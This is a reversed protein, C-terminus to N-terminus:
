SPEHESELSEVQWEDSAVLILMEEDLMISRLPNGILVSKEEEFEEKIKEFQEEQHDCVVLVVPRDGYELYHHYLMMILQRTKVCGNGKDTEAREAVLEDLGNKGLNFLRDMDTIVKCAIFRDEVTKGLSQWVDSPLDVNYTSM